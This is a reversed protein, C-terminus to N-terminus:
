LDLTIFSTLLLKCCLDNLEFLIYSIGKLCALDPHITPQSGVCCTGTYFINDHCGLPCSMEMM